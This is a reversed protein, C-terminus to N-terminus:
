KSKFNLQWWGDDWKLTVKRWGLPVQPYPYFPGIYPWATPSYQKPYTVAAYNPHAAYSPWAYGPLNPHDYRAPVVAHGAGPLQAPAGGGLQNMAMFPAAVIAGGAYAAMQAAGIPRPTQDASMMPAAMTQGNAYAVPVQNPMMPTAYMGQVPMQVAVPSVPVSGNALEPSVTLNASVQKVGPTQRALELLLREQQPSAVRGSMIVAAQDVRLDFDCGALRGMAEQQQIQVGLQQAIQLSEADSRGGAGTNSHAVLSTEDPESISLDNIVRKVGRIHRAIDIAMQHQEKSSVRGSLKVEANQVHVGIGFGRLQGNQKADQLQKMLETGIQKDLKAIDESDSQYLANEVRAPTISPAAEPKNGAITPTAQTPTRAPEISAVPVPKPELQPIASQEPAAVLQEAPTAQNVASLNCVIDRVGAVQNAAELALAIQQESSVHGDYKVVGKEVSLDIAFGQLDGRDQHKKLNATIQRAIEADTIVPKGAVAPAGSIQAPQIAVKDVIGKVGSVGSVVERALKKQQETAVVGDLTAIGDIVDISIRFGKLQGAAKQSSLERAIADAIDCDEQSIKRQVDLENVVQKVGESQRAVQLALEQQEKSAVYGKLVVTGESVQLNIDFGQLRGSEKEDKLKSTVERAIDADDAVAWSVAVLAISFIAMGVGLRRM